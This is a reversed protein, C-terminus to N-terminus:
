PTYATLYKKIIFFNIPVMAIIVILPAIKQNINLQEIVLYFLFISFMYQSVYYIVYYFANKNSHQVNFVWINNILYSFAIGSIYAIMYSIAYNEIWAYLFLYITYSVLTNGIGGIIFKFFRKAM